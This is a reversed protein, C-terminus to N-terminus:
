DTAPIFAPDGWKSDQAASPLYSPYHRLPILTRGQNTDSGEPM